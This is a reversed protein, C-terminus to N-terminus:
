SRAEALARSVLAAVQEVDFPKHIFAYAGTELAEDAMDDTAHATIMVVAVSPRLRKFRRLLDLGDADPLRVDLLIVEIAPCFRDLAEAGSGAETVLLGAQVLRERLSWRILFEDDVVLVSRGVVSPDTAQTENTTESTVM